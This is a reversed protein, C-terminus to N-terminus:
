CVPKINSKSHLIPVSETNELERQTQREFSAALDHTQKECRKRDDEIHWSLVFFFLAGLVLVALPFYLAYQLSFYQKTFENSGHSISDFLLGVIYPSAADGLLHSILIQFAAATARRTPIVTYLLIDSVLSWNLCISTIGLFFFVWSMQPIKHAFVSGIFILPISVVMGVACIVADADQYRHRFRTSLFSGLAVGSIGAGSMIGGFIANIGQNDVTETNNLVRAAYVMYTPAWWSLAGTAFTVCTFGLTSWRYSANRALSKLDAKMSTPGLAVGGESAGRPPDKLVFLLLIVAVAGLLPTVRLGWYWSGMAAAVNAGVIYGLGSGVPIAFYFCALMTSRKKGVFLDGIVTPAITSYSAEGVGVLARLLFFLIANGPPLSGLLTTTSWFAVGAAMLFKRNYRDGFYGFAPAAVMYSIIFVTQLLGGESNDLDYHSIVNDLVAAVTFRDMYNILNVFFLIAVSIYDRYSTATEAASSVGPQVVYDPMTAQNEDRSMNRRKVDQLRLM